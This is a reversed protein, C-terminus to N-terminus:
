SGRMRARHYATRRWTGILAAAWGVALLLYAATQLEPRQISLALTAAAIVVLTLGTWRWGRAVRRLEQRYRQLGEPSGLDPKPEV